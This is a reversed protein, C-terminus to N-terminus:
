LEEMWARRRDNTPDGFWRAMRDNRSEWIPKLGMWSFPKDQKTLLQKFTGARCTWGAGSVSERSSPTARPAVYREHGARERVRPRSSPSATKASADNTPM